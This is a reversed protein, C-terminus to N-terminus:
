YRVIEHKILMATLSSCFYISVLINFPIEACSQSVYATPQKPALSSIVAASYKPHTSPHQRPIQPPRHSSLDHVAPYACGPKVNQGGLPKQQAMERERTLSTSCRSYPLTVISRESCGCRNDVLNTSGAYNRRDDSVKDASNRSKRKGFFKLLKEYCMYALIPAQGM